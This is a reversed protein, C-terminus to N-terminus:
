KKSGDGPNRRERERNLREIEANIQINRDKAMNTLADMDDYREVGTVRAEPARGANLEGIRVQNERILSAANQQDSSLKAMRQFEGDGLSLSTLVRENITTGSVQSLTQFGAAGRQVQDAVFDRLRERSQNMQSSITERFANYGEESSITVSNGEFDTVTQGNYRAFDGEGFQGVVTQMRELSIAPGGAAQMLAVSQTANSAASVDGFIIENQINQVGTEGLYGQRKVYKKMDREAKGMQSKMRAIYNAVDNEDRLTIPHEGFFDTVTTGMLSRADANRLIQMREKMADLSMAPGGAVQMLAASQSIADRGMLDTAISDSNDDIATIQNNFDREHQLATLDPGIGFYEGVGGVADLFRHGSVAGFHGGHEARYRAREDRARTADTIATGAANRVDGFNKANRAAWGGRRLGSVAGAATSGLGRFAAGAKAWGGEAKRVNKVANVANRGLMGAAGGIAGAALLGGGQALKNRIGLSMGGTDLHFMESLLKPAERIFMVVGMILMAKALLRQTFTLAGMSAVGAFNAIVQNILFIGFYMIAIRLFVDIFTSTTKKVWTSFVDKMNGGPLVRCIVPIPAIIQFFMLKIVRVAMDFCFNLIVYAVFIGAVTSILPMYDISGEDAIAEGYKSFAVFSVDENLLETTMSALTQGNQFFIWGNGNILEACKSQGVGTGPDVSYEGNNDRTNCWAENEHFFSTFTYYAMRKGPSPITGNGKIELEYNSGLILKPITSQNLISNQINYAVSFVTPLVVIIILSVILNQILKPFSSEGKAFSDPDIVAKLLSYALVFLMIMGLVIYIRNVIGRYTEEQFLNAKALAEFIDYLYDILNYIAGDIYLLINFIISM